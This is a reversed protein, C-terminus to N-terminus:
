PVDLNGAAPETDNVEAVLVAFFVARLRALRLRQAVRGHPNAVRPGRVDVDVGHRTSEPKVVHQDVGSAFVTEVVSDLDDATRVNANIPTGHRTRSFCSDSEMLRGWLDRIRDDPAILLRKEEIRGLRGDAM